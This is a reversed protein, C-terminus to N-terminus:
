LELESFKRVSKDLFIILFKHISLLFSEVREPHNTILYKKLKTIYIKLNLVFDNENKFCIKKYDYEELIVNSKSILNKYHTDETQELNKVYEEAKKSCIKSEVKIMVDEIIENKYENM